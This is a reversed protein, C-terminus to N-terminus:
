ALDARTWSLTIWHYCGPYFVALASARQITAPGVKIAMGAINYSMKASNKHPTLPTLTPLPNLLHQLVKFVTKFSRGYRLSASPATLVLSLASHDRHPSSELRNTTATEDFHRIATSM